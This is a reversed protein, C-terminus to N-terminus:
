QVHLNQLTMDTTQFTLPKQMTKSTVDLTLHHEPDMPGTCKGLHIVYTCWNEHILCMCWDCPDTISYNQVNGDEQHCPDRKNGSWMRSSFSLIPVVSLMFGIAMYNSIDGSGLLSAVVHIFVHYRSGPNWDVKRLVKRHKGSSGVSGHPGYFWLCWRNETTPKSLM